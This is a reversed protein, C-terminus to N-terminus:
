ILSEVLSDADPLAALSLPTGDVRDGVVILRRDAYVEVAVEGRRVKRGRGALSGRFWLHLGTGSAGRETYTPPLVELLALAWPAVAGDPGVCHDLDVVVIGDAAALVFGIGDGTSSAAATAHDSWTSPDTTSAWRGATTMPRKATHRVWRARSRLEAPIAAARRDAAAQAAARRRARYAKAECSRSCHKRDARHMIPMPGACHICATRPAATM